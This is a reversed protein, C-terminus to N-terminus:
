IWAKKAVAYYFVVVVPKQNYLIEGKAGLSVNEAKQGVMIKFIADHVKKELAPDKFLATGDFVWFYTGRSIYNDLTQLDFFQKAPVPTVNTPSPWNPKTKIPTTSRPKFNYVGSRGSGSGYRRPYNGTSNTRNQYQQSEAQIQVEKKEEAALPASGLLPLILFACIYTLRAGLRLLSTFGM